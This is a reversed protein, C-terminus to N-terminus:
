PPCCNPVNYLPKMTALNLLVRVSVLCQRPSVKTEAEQQTNTSTEATAWVVGPFPHYTQDDLSGEISEHFPKFNQKLVFFPYLVQAIAEKVMTIVKSRQSDLMLEILHNLLIQLTAAEMKIFFEGTLQTHHQVPWCKYVATVTMMIGESLIWACNVYRVVSHNSISCMYTSCAYPVTDLLIVRIVTWSCNYRSSM